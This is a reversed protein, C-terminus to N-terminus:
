SELAAREEETKKNKKKLDLCIESHKKKTEAVKNLCPQIVSFDTLSAEQM